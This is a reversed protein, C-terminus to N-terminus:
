DPARRNAHTRAHPSRTCSCPTGTLSQIVFYRTSDSVTFVQSIPVSYLLRGDERVDVFPVHSTRTPTDELAISLTVTRWQETWARARIALSTVCSLVRVCWRVRVM